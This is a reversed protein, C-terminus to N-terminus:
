GWRGAWIRLLTRWNKWKRSAHRATLRRLQFADGGPLNLGPQTTCATDFGAEAVLDRVEPNWDGFPYCFHRVRIGFQDELSAKSSRIEERAQARPLRTLWPHTFTHAGIEHGASLWERVQTVDMLRESVEGQRQEWENTRGVLGAVLFQIARFGHQRLPELGHRLVNEFGDDFTLAIRRGPSNEEGAWEQLGASQYGAEALEALQRRFLSTGVYLGKLRVGAPRPGLKHYMLAPGGGRGFWAKFSHLSTFCDPIGPPVNRHGDTGVADVVSPPVSAM